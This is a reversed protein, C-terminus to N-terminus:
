KCAAPCAVETTHHSIAESPVTKKRTSALSCRTATQKLWGTKTEPHNACRMQSKPGQSGCRQYGSCHVSGTERSWPEYSSPTWLQTATKEAVLRWRTLNLFQSECAITFLQYLGKRWPFLRIVKYKPTAYNSDLTQHCQYTKVKKPVYPFTTAREWKAPGNCLQLWKSINWSTEQRFGSYFRM